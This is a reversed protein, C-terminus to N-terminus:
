RVPDPSSRFYVIFTHRTRTYHFGIVCEAEWAMIVLELLHHCRIICWQRCCYGSM